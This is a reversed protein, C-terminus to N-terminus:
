LKRSNKKDEKSLSILNDSGESLIILKGNEDFTIITGPKMYSPIKNNHSKDIENSNLATAALSNWSSLVLLLVSCCAIIKVFNMRLMKKSFM